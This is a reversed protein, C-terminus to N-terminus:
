FENLFNAIDNISALNAQALRATFNEATLKNFEQTTIYKDHYNDTTVKNEIESIKRNYETKKVLNSIIPIKNLATTTAYNTIRPIKKIENIKTNATINNALNIIDTIKEEISKINLNNYM